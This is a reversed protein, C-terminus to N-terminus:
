APAAPRLRVATGYALVESVGQKAFPTVQYRIAIVADARLAEAHNLMEASAAERAAEVVEVFYRNNGGELLADTKGRIRQRRTPIQVAIGRVIGLYDAITRGCIENATTVIM